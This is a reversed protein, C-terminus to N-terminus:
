LSYSYKSMFFPKNLFPNSKSAARTVAQKKKVPSSINAMESFAASPVQHTVFFLVLTGAFFSSTKM